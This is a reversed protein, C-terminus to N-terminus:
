GTGSGPVEDRSRFVKEGDGGGSEIVDDFGDESCLMRKFHEATCQGISGFAAAEVPEGIAEGFYQGFRASEADGLFLCLNAPYASSPIVVMDFAPSHRIFTASPNPLCGARLQGLLARTRV